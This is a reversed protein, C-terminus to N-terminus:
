ETLKFLVGIEGSVQPETPEVPTSAWEGTELDIALCGAPIPIGESPVFHSYVLIENHREEFRATGLECGLLKVRM